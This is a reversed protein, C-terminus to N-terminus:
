RNAVEIRFFTWTSTVARDEKAIAFDRDYTAMMQRLTGIPTNRRTIAGTHHFFRLLDLASDFRLVRPHAESRLITWGAECFYSKWQEPSRWIIPSRLNAISQWDILTPAVYFGHLMRGNPKALTRWHRLVKAPDECWQLLSASFLRDVPENELCWADDVRWEVHPLVRNGQEIMRPAIDVATTSAFCPALYRTFLGDGAGFELATLAAVQEAPELWEALWDALQRQVVAFRSYSDAKVNFSSSM